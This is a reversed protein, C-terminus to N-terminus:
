KVNPLAVSKLKMFYLTEEKGNSMKINPMEKYVDFGFRSYYSRLFDGFCELYKGGMKVVHGMLLKGVGEFGTNNFLDVAM